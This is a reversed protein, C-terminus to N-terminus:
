YWRVKAPEPNRFYSNPNQSGEREKKKRALRQRRTIAAKRERAKKESPKEYFDRGWRKSKQPRGDRELQKRLLKIAREINGDVVVFAM